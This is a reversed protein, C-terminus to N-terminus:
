CAAVPQVEKLLRSVTPSVQAGHSVWKDISQANKIQVKVQQGKPNPNYFGLVELHKGDRRDRKEMAVIFFYPRKKSGGRKLRIVVM